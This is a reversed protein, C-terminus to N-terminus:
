ARAGRLADLSFRGPGVLAIAAFAMLYLLALERKGFPDGAHTVFAAVAMTVIAPVAAARTFLGAAVLLGCVLEGFVALGLSPGVGIGLPDAFTLDGALLKAAKPAGHVVAFAGGFGLRLLLRGADLM